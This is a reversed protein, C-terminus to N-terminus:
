QGPRPYSSTALTVFRPTLQPQVLGIHGQASCEAVAAPSDQLGPPSYM